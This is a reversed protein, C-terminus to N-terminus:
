ANYGPSSHNSYSGPDKLFMESLRTNEIKNAVWQQILCGIFAVFLIKLALIMRKHCAEIASGLNPFIVSPTRVRNYYEALDNMDYGDDIFDPNYNTNRSLDM